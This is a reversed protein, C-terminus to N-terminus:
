VIKGSLDGMLWQEFNLVKWISMVMVGLKRNNDERPSAPCLIAVDKENVQASSKQKAKQDNKEKEIAEASQSGPKGHWGLDNRVALAKKSWSDWAGVHSEAFGSFCSM